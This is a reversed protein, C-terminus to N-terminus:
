ALVEGGSHRDGFSRDVADSVHRESVSRDILQMFRAFGAPTRGRLRASTVVALDTVGTLRAGRRALAEWVAREEGVAIAPFGGVDMLRSARVGLNAGHVHGHGLDTGRAAMISRYGHVMRRDADPPLDVLGAVGDLGRAAYEAHRVLWDSGVVSDADTTAVWVQSAEVDALDMGLEIARRCARDRAAGASGLNADEVAFRAAPGRLLATTAIAVTADTCTDACVAVVVPLAVLEIAGIVSELCQEIRGSENRAPIGVALVQAAPADVHRRRRM